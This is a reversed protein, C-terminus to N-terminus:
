ENINNEKMTPYLKENLIEHSITLWWNCLCLAVFMILYFIPMRLEKHKIYYTLILPKGNIPFSTSHFQWFFIHCLLMRISLLVICKSVISFFFRSFIKDIIPLCYSYWHIWVLIYTLYNQNRSRFVWWTQIDVMVYVFYSGYSISFVFYPVKPRNPNSYLLCFVGYSCGPTNLIYCM